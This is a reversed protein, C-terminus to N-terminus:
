QKSMAGSIGIGPDNQLIYAENTSVMYLVVNNSIQDIAVLVRGNGSSVAQYNAALTAQSSFGGANAFQRVTMNGNGDFLMTGVRDKSNSDFGDMVFAYQANLSANNFSTAQQQDVTGDEIEATTNTLTYARTPSVMWFIQHIQGGTEPNLTVDARGTASVTYSGTFDVDAFSTGDEVSDYKGATIGGAGDATFRGVRNLDDIFSNPIDGRSGFAYSGSLSAASFAGGTQKQAQGIGIGGQDAALLLMNSSDVVYYRFTTTASGSDTFLVSGRGNADPSSFLGSISTSSVIGAINRDFTGTVSGNNVTFAGVANASPAVNHTRVVFTGTPLNTSATTDQKYAVGFGTAGLDTEILYFKSPSVLAFALNISGGSGFRITATARGDGAVQYTGTISDNTVADGMGFDDTGGTINGNGDAILVGSESFASSQFITGSLQYVYHGSLSANSFNGTPPPFNGGGNSSGFGCAFTFLLLLVCIVLLLKNM